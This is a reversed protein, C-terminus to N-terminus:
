EVWKVFGFHKLTPLVNPALKEKELEDLSIWKWDDIHERSNIEGIRKALYHVLIVDTKGELNEKQTYLVFPNEDLIEIEIGLEEKAKRKATEILSNDRSDVRGGCFKLFKDDGHQDLLVKNNEIIVPGSAIIIKQM